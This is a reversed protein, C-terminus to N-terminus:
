AEARLQTIHGEEFSRKMRLRQDTQHGGGQTPTSSLVFGPIPQDVQTLAFKAQLVGQFGQFLLDFLTGRLQPVVFFHQALRLFHLRDALESATDGVVEVVHQRTNDAAQFQQAPTQGTAAGVVQFAQDIKTHGGGITRGAQGMAQQRERSTLREIGFGHFHIRQHNGHTLQQLAADIFANAQLHLQTILQPHCFGIGIM